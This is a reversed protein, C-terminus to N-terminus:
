SSLYRLIAELLILIRVLHEGTKGPVLTGNVRGMAHYLHQGTEEYGGDVPDRGYPIRGHSTRVWEMTAPDFPLLDYRGEHEVETSGYPVHCPIPLHPAIKCPHVSRQFIASGIFIPSLGDADYCPPEKTNAPNPFTSNLHLPIRTGSPPPRHSYPPPPGNDTKYDEKM